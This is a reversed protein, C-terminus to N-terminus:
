KSCETYTFLEIALEDSITFSDVDTTICGNDDMQHTVGKPDDFMIPEVEGKIVALQLNRLTYENVHIEAGDELFVVFMPTQIRRAIIAQMTTM